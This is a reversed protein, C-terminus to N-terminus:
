GHLNVGAIRIITDLSFDGCHRKTASLLLYKRATIAPNDVHPVHLGGLTAFVGDLAYM